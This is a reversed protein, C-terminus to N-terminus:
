GEGGGAPADAQPALVAETGCVMGFDACLDHAARVVGKDAGDYYISVPQSKSLLWGNGEFNVFQEAAAAENLLTGAMCIALIISYRKM